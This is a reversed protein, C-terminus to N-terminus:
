EAVAAESTCISITIEGDEADEGAAITDLVVEFRNGDQDVIYYSGDEDQEVTYSATATSITIDDGETYSVNGDDVTTISYSCEAAETEGESPQRDAAFASASLVGVLAAASCLACIRNFKKM